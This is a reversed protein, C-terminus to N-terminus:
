YLVLLVLLVVVLLVLVILMVGQAVRRFRNPFHNAVICFTKLEDQLSLLTMWPKQNENINGIIISVVLVVM